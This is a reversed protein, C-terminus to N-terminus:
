AIAPRAPSALCRLVMTRRAGLRRWLETEPEEENPHGGVKQYFTKAILLGQQSGSGRGFAAWLVALIEVAASRVGGAVAAPRFIAARHDPSAEADAIFRVAEVVWSNELVVGAPLFLLWPGRASQAAAKLRAGLPGPAVIFRCGAIDAVEATEDTSGADAVIVDRLIGATVGPVLCALTPVLARESDNTAIVASLM